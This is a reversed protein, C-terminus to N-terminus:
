ASIPEIHRKQREHNEKQHYHYNGYPCVDRAACLSTCYFQEPRCEFWDPLDRSNMAEISNEAWHVAEIYADPRYAQEDQTNEKFLNFRLLSPFAGFHDALYKSYLFLQRYMSARSRKFSSLSSSKHDVLVFAGTKRDRLILDIIGVFPVGGLFSAFDQEVSVIEYDPFGEFAQFYRLCSEYLKQRYGKAELFVPFCETVQQEFGDQWLGPLDKITAEGKAWLALLRHVFSGAQAFANEKPAVGALRTLYYSYPCQEAQTIQSYSIHEM